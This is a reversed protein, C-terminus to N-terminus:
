SGINRIISSACDYSMKSLNSVMQLRQTQKQMSNQLELNALDANDGVSNLQNSLSSIADRLEGVTSITETSYTVSGDLGISSDYVSYTIPPNLVSDSAAGAMSTQEKTLDDIENRIDEKLKNYNSVQLGFMYLEQQGQSYSELLVREVYEVVNMGSIDISGDGDSDQEGSQGNGSGAQGGFNSGSGSFSQAAEGLTLGAGYLEGSSRAANFASMLQANNKKREAVDENNETLTSSPLMINVVCQSAQPQAALLSSVGLLSEAGLLAQGSTTIDIDAQGSARKLSSKSSGDETTANTYEAFMSLLDPDLTEVSLGSEWIAGTLAEDIGKGSTVNTMSDAASTGQTLANKKPATNSSETFVDSINVRNESTTVLKISSGTNMAYVGLIRRKDAM